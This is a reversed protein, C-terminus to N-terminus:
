TAMGVVVFLIRLFSGSNDRQRGHVNSSEYYPQPFSLASNNTFDFCGLNSICSSFPNNKPRDLPIFKSDRKHLVARFSIATTGIM